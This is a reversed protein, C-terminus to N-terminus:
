TAAGTLVWSVFALQNSLFRREPALLDPCDTYSELDRLFDSIKGQKIKRDVALQATTVKHLDSNHIHGVPLM